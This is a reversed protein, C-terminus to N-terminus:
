SSRRLRRAEHTRLGGENRWIQMDVIYVGDCDMSSRPHVMFDVMDGTHLPVRFEVKQRQPRDHAADPNVAQWHLQMSAGTGAVTHRIELDLGDGCIPWVEYAMILMGRPAAAFSQFRMTFSASASGCCTNSGPARCPHLLMHHMAPYPMSQDPCGWFGEGGEGVHWAMQRFDSANPGSVFGVLWGKHGQEPPYDDVLSALPRPFPALHLSNMVEEADGLTSSASGFSIQREVPPKDPICDLGESTHNALQFLTRPFTHTRLGAKSLLMALVWSSYTRFVRAQAVYAECFTGRQLLMPVLETCQQENGSYLIWTPGTPFAHKGSPMQAGFVLAGVGNDRATSVLLLESLEEPAAQPDLLAYEEPLLLLPLDPDSVAGDGCVAEWLELASQHPAIRVMQVARRSARAVAVHLAVDEQEMQRSLVSAFHDHWRLWQARGTVIRESLQVTKITGTRLVGILKERLAPMSPEPIVVDGHMKYDVMEVVGGVDFMIFPIGKVAAEAVVYPMNDVLSCLVLMTGPQSLIDLAEGREANVRIHVPFSWSATRERIWDGSPLMDIRSEAGVFHVEFRSDLSAHDLTAVAEVFLKLGKREELRSFFALRWVPKESGVVDLPRQAQGQTSWFHGGHSEVVFRLGPKLQRYANATIADVFVGGWEHAHVVDCRGLNQQLWALVAHSLQEYPFTEVVEPQFHQAELCAFTVHDPSHSHIRAGEQCENARKTVGLFTVHINPAGGLAQALLHYATATGGASKLGWFDATLICVGLPAGRPRLALGREALWQQGEDHAAASGGMGRLLGSLAVRASFDSAARASLSKSRDFSKRGAHLGSVRVSFGLDPKKAFEAFPSPYEQQSM